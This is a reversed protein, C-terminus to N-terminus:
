NPRTEDRVWDLFAPHGGALDIFVVCPCAYSHLAKVRETLAEGLARRTKAVLVVEEGQTLEGQWRYLSQVPGLINVCAALREEVLARGITEAEARHGVTVYALVLPEGQSEAM